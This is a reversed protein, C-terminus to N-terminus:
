RYGQGAEQISHLRLCYYRPRKALIEAKFWKLMLFYPHLDFKQIEEKMQLPRHGELEILYLILNFFYNIELCFDYYLIKKYSSIFFYFHFLCTL